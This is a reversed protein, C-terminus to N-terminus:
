NWRGRPEDDDVRRGRWYKLGGAAARPRGLDETLFLVGIALAASIILGIRDLAFAWTLTQGAAWAACILVFRVIAAQGRTM